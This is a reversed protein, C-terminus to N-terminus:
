RGAMAIIISIVIGTIFSTVVTGGMIQWKFKLVSDLKENVLSFDEKVEEKFKDMDQKLWQLQNM